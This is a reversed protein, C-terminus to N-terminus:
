GENSLVIRYRAKNAKLRQMAENCKDMPMVELMPVIHHRAAFGLMEVIDARSGTISGGMWKEGFMLSGAPVLLDEAARSLVVLRGEKRLMGLLKTVDIKASSTILLVDVMEKGGLSPDAFHSAGFAKADNEKETSHSFATVECGMATAFRIALHGLGGIGLVGVKDEPKTGANRLAKFVTLGACLLPAAEESRLAAPIEYVFRGDAVLRDAFGGGSLITARKKDCLHEKGRLCYYCELCSSYQYSVGVRQGQRHRMMNGTAEVTGVIEHGPVLPYKSPYHEGLIYHLDTHCFGCHSIRVVVDFPGPARGEYSYPQLEGGKELAAYANIRM